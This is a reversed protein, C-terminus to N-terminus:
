QLEWRNMKYKIAAHIHTKSATVIHWVFLLVFCYCQCFFFFIKKKLFLAVPITLETSHFLNKKSSYYFRTSQRIPFFTWKVGFFHWGIGPLKIFQCQDNAYFLFIVFDREREAWLTSTYTKNRTDSPKTCHQSVYLKKTYM